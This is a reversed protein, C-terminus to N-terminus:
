ASLAWRAAPPHPYHVDDDRVRPRMRLRNWWSGSGHRDCPDRDRGGALARVARWRPQHSSTTPAGVPMHARDRDRDTAGRVQSRNSVLTRRETRGRGPQRASLAVRAIRTSAAKRSVSPGFCFDAPRGTVGAKDGVRCDRGSQRERRRGTAASAHSSSADLPLAGACWLSGRPLRHAPAM